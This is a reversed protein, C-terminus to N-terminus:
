KEFYIINEKTPEVMNLVYKSKYKLEEESIFDNIEQMMTTEMAEYKQIEKTLRINHLTKALTMANLYIFGGLYVLMVAFLIGVICKCFSFTISKNRKEAKEYTYNIMKNFREKDISNDLLNRRVIASTM